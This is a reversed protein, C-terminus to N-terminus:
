RLIEGKTNVYYDYEEATMQRSMQKFHDLCRDCTGFWRAPCDWVNHKKGANAKAGRLHAVTSVEKGLSPYWIRDNDLMLGRGDRTAPYPNSAINFINGPVVSLEGPVYTDRQNQLLSMALAILGDDDVGALKSKTFRIGGSNTDALRGNGVHQTLMKADPHEIRREQILSLLLNAAYEMDKGNQPVAWYNIRRKELASIWHWLGSADLAVGGLLGAENLDLIKDLEKTLDINGGQPPETISVYRVQYKDTLGNYTTGILACANRNLAGDCGLFLRRPPVIQQLKRIGVKM